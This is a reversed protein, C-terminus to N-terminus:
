ALPPKLDLTAVYWDSVGNGTMQDPAHDSIYTYLLHRNYEVQPGNATKQVTLKGPLSSAGLTAHPDPALLPPWARACAGTCASTTPTDPIYFYLAFGRADTLILAQSGGLSIQATRVPLVPHTAMSATSDNTSGASATNRASAPTRCSSLLITVM